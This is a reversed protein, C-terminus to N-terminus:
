YRGGCRKGILFSTKLPAGSGWVEKAPFSLNNKDRLSIYYSKVNFKGKGYNKWILTGEGEQVKSSFIHELFRSM